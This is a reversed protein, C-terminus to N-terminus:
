YQGTRARREVGGLYFGLESRFPIEQNKVFMKEFLGSKQLVIGFDKTGLLTSDSLENITKSEYPSSDCSKLFLTTFSVPPVAVEVFIWVTNEFDVYVQFHQLNLQNDYVCLGSIGIQFSIISNRFVTQKNTVRIAVTENGMEVTKQFICDPITFFTDDLSFTVDPESPLHLQNHIDSLLSLASTVNLAVQKLNSPVAIAGKYYRSQSFGLLRKAYQLPYQVVNDERKEVEVKTFSSFFRMYSLFDAFHRITYKFDPRNSYVGIEHHTRHSLSLYPYVSSSYEPISDGHSQSLLYSYEQLSSIRNIIMVRYHYLTNFHFITKSYRNLYDQLYQLISFAHQLDSCQNSLLNFFLLIHQNNPHNTSCQTSMWRIVEDFWVEVHDKRCNSLHVYEYEQQEAGCGINVLNNILWTEDGYAHVVIMRDFVSRGQRNGSFVYLNSHDAMFTEGDSDLGGHGYYKVFPNSNSCYYVTNTSSHYVVLMEIGTRELVTLIGRPYEYGGMVMGTTVVVQFNSYIWRTGTTIIDILDTYRLLSVDPLSWM